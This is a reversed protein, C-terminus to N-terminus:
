IDFGCTDIHKIFLEDDDEICAELETYVWVERYDKIEKVYHYVKNGKGFELRAQYDSVKELLM